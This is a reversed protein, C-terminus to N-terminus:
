NIPEDNIAVIFGNPTGNWTDTDFYLGAEPDSMAGDTYGTVYLDAPLTKLYDILDAVKMPSKYYTKM